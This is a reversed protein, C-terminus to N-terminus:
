EVPPGIKSLRLHLEDLGREVTGAAVLIGGRPDQPDSGFTNHQSADSSVTGRGESSGTGDEEARATAMTFCSLLGFWTVLVVILLRM